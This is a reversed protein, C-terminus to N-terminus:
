STGTLLERLVANLIMRGRRTARIRDGDRELAGLDEMVRIRGPLGQDAGLRMLRAESLGDALRLGMMLYEEAQELPTLATAEWVPAGSEEAEALWRAPDSPAVSAMRSGALTM